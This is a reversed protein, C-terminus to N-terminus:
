RAKSCNIAEALASAGWAPDGRVAPDRGRLRAAGGLGGKERLRGEGERSQRVVSQTM